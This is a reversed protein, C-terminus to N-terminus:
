PNATLIPASSEAPAAHADASVAGGLYRCPLPACDARWFLSSPAQFPPVDLIPIARLLHRTKGVEVARRGDPLRWPDGTAM